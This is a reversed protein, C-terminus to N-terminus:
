GGGVDAVAGVGEGGPQGEDGVGLVDRRVAGVDEGERRGGDVGEEGGVAAPQACAGQGVADGVVHHVLPRPQLRQEGPRSSLLPEEDPQVRAAGLVAVQM